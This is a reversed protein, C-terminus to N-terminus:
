QQEPAEARIIWDYIERDILVKEVYHRTEPYGIWALYIDRAPSGGLQKEWRSAARPGANYAAVAQYPNGQYRRSNEQLLQDGHRISVGPNRWNAEGPLAGREEYHFPMIQMWGLAGARSRVSPEFLSENRAVALLLAPDSGAELIAAHIADSDPLPYLFRRKEGPTLGRGELQVAVALTGRMDGMALAFGLLAHRDLESGKLEQLFRPVASPQPLTKWGSALGVDRDFAQELMQRYVTRNGLRDAIIKLAALEQEAPDTLQQMRQLAQGYLIARERKLGQVPEPNALALGWRIWLDWRPKSTAQRFLDRRPEAAPELDDARGTEVVSRAQVLIDAGPDSDVRDGASIRDEWHGTERLFAEREKDKFYELGLDHVQRAVPIDGQALALVLAQENWQRLRRRTSRHGHGNAALQLAQRLDELGQEWQGKLLRLESARRWVDMRWGPKLDKRLALEEYVAPDGGSQLRRGRVWLGQLSNDAPPEPYKVFHADRSAGRFMVAGLGAKFEPALGSGYLEEPSLWSRSIRTLHKGWKKVAMSSPLVPHGTGRCYAVWLTWASGSDFPGLVLMTPWSNNTGSPRNGVQRFLAKARLDWVFIERDSLGMKRGGDRLRIAGAAAQMIRGAELHNFVDRTAREALLPDSDQDLPNSLPGNELQELVDAMRDLWETEGAPGTAVSIMRRCLYSGSGADRSDLVRRAAAMWVPDVEAPDLIDAPYGDKLSITEPDNYTGVQFRELFPDYLPGALVNGAGLAWGALCLLIKRNM